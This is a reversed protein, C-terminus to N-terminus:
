QLYPNNSKKSPEQQGTGDDGADIQQEPNPMLENQLQVGQAQLQIQREQDQAQQKFDINREKQIQEEMENIEIDNLRLINEQIWQKSYYKGAYQDILALVGLREQMLESEKLEIFNNDKLYDYFVNEKFLNWEEETCVGKLVLQIRLAQDFLESFKARLKDIFKSFKLEDRTIETARGVSTAQSPDLRTVPVGLSKYLKKEFYSIDSIEGLNQAGPLTTIETSRQDSRRALFYDELLSLHKSDSKVEGTSADYVLKNKHKTMIDRVHQEAKIRPLNGVDIYFIRREPSRSNHVPIGNAIFNHKESAVEIEYVDEIEAEKVSIIPDFKPLDKEYITLNWKEGDFLINDTTLGFSNWLEKIEECYLKNFFRLTAKWTDLIECNSVIGFENSIDKLRDLLKQNKNTSNPVVFSHQEPIINEINVYEVVNTTKDLVLIPHNDTGTISFHKSSVTYTQKIGTKWQKVVNTEILGKEPGWYSYVIDNEQIDKIYKWGVDTKIRTDGVLCLRYIVAADESMRLQNLPKLSKHLYSLVINRKPDMLGSNVNIVSDPAIKVGIVSTTTPSNSIRDSYIYYEQATTIIDVGTNPDKQKKVERIKRIKRPDIYRLEQIGKQPNEIDVIVHYFLRGDIYWRRFIDGGMNNFNLLRLITRFEDEIAKKIKDPQKLKEMTLKVSEGNDDHIIAENVIDEIAAELEPQLSAERYRTILEVENKTSGDLDLATTGFQAATTVTYSGDDNSPPTFSPQIIEKEDNRKGIKFGFLNWVNAM